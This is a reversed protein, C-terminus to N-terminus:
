NSKERQASKSGKGGGAWLHQDQPFVGIFKECTYRKGLTQKGSLRVLSVPMTKM